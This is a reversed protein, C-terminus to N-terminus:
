GKFVTIAELGPEINDFRFMLTLSTIANETGHGNMKLLGSRTTMGSGLEIIISKTTSDNNFVASIIQGVFPEFILPIIESANPLSWTRLGSPEGHIIGSIIQDATLSINGSGVDIISKTNANKVVLYLEQVASVLPVTLKSYDVSWTDSDNIPPAVASPYVDYLQQALFGYHFEDDVINDPGQSIWKYNKVQISNCINLGKHFEVIDKKIREDSSTLYSVTNSLNNKQIKGINTTGFFFVQYNHTGAQNGILELCSEPYVARIVAGVGFADNCSTLGGTGL